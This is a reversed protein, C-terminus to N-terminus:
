KGSLPKLLDFDHDRMKTKEEGYYDNHDYAHISGEKYTQDNVTGGWHAADNFITIPVDIQIGIKTAIDHIWNDSHANMSVHGVTNYWERPYIPNGNFGSLTYMNHQPKLVVFRGNFKEIEIDWDKSVMYTDDNWTFLWKGSSVAALENLFIYHDKYGRYRHGIIVKDQPRVKIEKIRDLSEIDDFDLRIMLEIWEKNSANNLLSEITKNLLNIRGRSPILVSVLIDFKTRENM